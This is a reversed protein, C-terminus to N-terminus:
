EAAIQWENFSLAFAVFVGFFSHENEKKNAHLAAVFDNMRWTNERERNGHQIENWIKAHWNSNNNDLMFTMIMIILVRVAVLEPQASQPLRRQVCFVLWTLLPAAYFVASGPSPRYATNHQHNMPKRQYVLWMYPVYVLVCWQPMCGIRGNATQTYTAHAM